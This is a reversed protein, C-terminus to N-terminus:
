QMIASAVKVDSNASQQRGSVPMLIIGQVYENKWPKEAFPHNFICPQMEYLITQLECQLTPDGHKKLAQLHLFGDEMEVM